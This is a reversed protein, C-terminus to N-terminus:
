SSRKLLGGSGAGRLLAAYDGIAEDVECSGGPMGGTSQPCHRRNRWVCHRCLLSNTSRTMGIGRARYVAPKLIGHAHRLGAGFRLRRLMSSTDRRKRGARAQEAVQRPSMKEWFQSPAHTGASSHGTGSAYGELSGAQRLWLPGREAIRVHGAEGPWMATGRYLRRDFDTGSRFRHGHDPFVLNKM